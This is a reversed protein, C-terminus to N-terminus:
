KIKRRKEEIQLDLDELEQITKKVRQNQEILLEISMKMEENEKVVRELERLLALLNQVEETKGGDPDLAMYTELEELARLYDPNPNKYHSYLLVLQLHAMTRISPEPHYKVLKELRAIEKPFDQPYLVPYFVSEKEILSTHKPACNTILLWIFLFVFLKIATESRIM